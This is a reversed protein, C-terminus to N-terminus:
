ILFLCILGIILSIVGAWCLINRLFNYYDRYKTADTSILKIDKCLIGIYQILEKKTLKELSM